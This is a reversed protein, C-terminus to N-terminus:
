RPMPRAAIKDGLPSPAMLEALNVAPAPGQALAHGGMLSTLALAGLGLTDRRDLM